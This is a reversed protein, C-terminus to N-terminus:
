KKFLLGGLCIQVSTPTSPLHEYFCVAVVTLLDDEATEGRPQKDCWNAFEYVRRIMSENRPESEYAREFALRLEFWLMYANEAEHVADRLEPFKAEATERWPLIM